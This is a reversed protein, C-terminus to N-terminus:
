NLEIRNAFLISFFFSSIFKKNMNPLFAKYFNKCIDTLANSFQALYKKSSKLAIPTEKSVCKEYKTVIWVQIMRVKVSSM